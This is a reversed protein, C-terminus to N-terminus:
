ARLSRLQTEVFNFALTTLTSILRTFCLNVQHKAVLSFCNARLAIHLLFCRMSLLRLPPTLGGLQICFLINDEQRLPVAVFNCPTLRLPPTLGGLRIFFLINDWQGLPVAVFNCPTLVLCCCGYPRVLVAWASAFVFFFM